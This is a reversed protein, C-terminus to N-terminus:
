DAPAEYLPKTLRELQMRRILDKYFYARPRARLFRCRYPSASVQVGAEDRLPLDIQGDVSLIAEQETKARLELRAEPPLVVSRALMLHPLVPTVLLNRLEPQLVPGGASLSYATSGTATSVLVGDGHYEALTVGDVRVLFHVLRVRLGRGMLVDNLAIYEPRAQEKGTATLAYGVAAEPELKVSLMTREEVWCDGNLYLPLRERAQEPSLETLFGLRGLNVGLIPVGVPAALRAIRVITGDGGLTVVLDLHDWEAQISRENYAALTWAHGGRAAIDAALQRALDEAEPIHPNFVFGVRKVQTVPTM